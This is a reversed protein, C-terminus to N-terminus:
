GKETEATKVSFSRLLFYLHERANNDFVFIATQHSQLLNFFVSPIKM